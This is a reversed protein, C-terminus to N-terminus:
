GWVGLWDKGGVDMEGATTNERGDDMRGLRTGWGGDRVGERGEATTLVLDYRQRTEKQRDTHRDTRKQREIETYM